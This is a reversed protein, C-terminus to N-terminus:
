RLFLNSIRLAVKQFNVHEKTYTDYNIKKFYNYDLISIPKIAFIFFVNILNNM